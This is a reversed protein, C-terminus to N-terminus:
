PIVKPGLLVDSHFFDQIAGVFFEEENPQEAMHHSTPKRYAIM